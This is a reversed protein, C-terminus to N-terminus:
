QTGWCMTAALGKSPKLRTEGWVGSGPNMASITRPLTNTQRHRFFFLGHRSAGLAMRGLVNCWSKDVWSPPHSKPITSWCEAIAGTTPGQVM